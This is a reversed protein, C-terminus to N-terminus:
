MPLNPLGKHGGSSSSTQVPATPPQGKRPSWGHAGPTVNVNKPLTTEVLLFLNGSTTPSTVSSTVPSTVPLAVPSMAPHSPWQAPQPQAKYPQPLFLKFTGFCKASFLIVQM